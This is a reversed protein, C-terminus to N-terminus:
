SGKALAKFTLDPAHWNLSVPKLITRDFGCKAGIVIMCGFVAFRLHQTKQLLELLIM